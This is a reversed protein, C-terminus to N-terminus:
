LLRNLRPCAKTISTQFNLYTLIRCYSLNSIVFVFMFSLGARWCQMFKM